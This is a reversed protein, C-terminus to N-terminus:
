QRGADRGGTAEESAAPEDLLTKIMKGLAMGQEEGSGTTIFRLRGNRDILFSMPISLVSYRIDNVSSDAIAFGYPLRNKQKFQRLYALEEERTAERGEIQGYYNTVGLIVLGADRYKEHWMRLKPFTFRCPGCWTAWFDLLVVHGKLESLKTPAQDIWQAAVVEPALRAQEPALGSFLKNSDAAPDIERLLKTILKYLNGSALTVAFKRITEVSNFALERKGLKRYAESLFFAGKFLMQDRKVPDIRSEAIRQAVRVMREAHVVTRDYYQEKYSADAALSHLDFLEQQDQVPQQEYQQLNTEAESYLKKRLAHVIIAARATQALDSTPKQSLFLRLSELAADSNDALHYLLGLYYLDDGTVSSKAAIAANRAALDKQEQRTRAELSPDFSIHRRNFDEYKKEVYTNAEDYLARVNISGSATSNERGTSRGSQPTIITWSLAIFVLAFCLSRIM